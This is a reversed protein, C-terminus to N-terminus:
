TRATNACISVRSSIKYALPTSVHLYFGVPVARLAATLPAFPEKRGLVASAEVAALQHYKAAFTLERRREVMDNTRATLLSRILMVVCVVRRESMGVTVIQPAICLAVCDRNSANFFKPSIIVCEASGAFQRLGCSGCWGGEM